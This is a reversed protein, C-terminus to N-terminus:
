INSVEPCSCDLTRDPEGPHLMDVKNELATTIGVYIM